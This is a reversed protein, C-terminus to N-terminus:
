DMFPPSRVLTCVSLANARGTRLFHPIALMSKLGAHPLDTSCSCLPDSYVNNSAIRVIKYWHKYSTLNAWIPVPVNGILDGRTWYVRGGSYPKPPYYRSDFLSQRLFAQGNSNCSNEMNTWAAALEPSNRSNNKAILLERQVQRELVAKATAM